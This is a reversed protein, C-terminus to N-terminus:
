SQGGRRVAFPDGLLGSEWGDRPAALEYHKCFMELCKAAVAENRLADLPRDAPRTALNKLLAHVAESASWESIRDVLRMTLFRNIAEPTTTKRMAEVLRTLTEEEDRRRRDRYATVTEPTVMIRSKM